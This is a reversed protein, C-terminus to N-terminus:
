MFLKNVFPVEAESVCKVQTKWNHTNHSILCPVQFNGARSILIRITVSLINVTSLNKASSNRELLTSYNTKMLCPLYPLKVWYIHQIM